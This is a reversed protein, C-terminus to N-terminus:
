RIRKGLDDSRVTYTQSTAGSIKKCTASSSDGAPEAKCQLWQYAYKVNKTGSWLGRHGILEGGVVAPGSISPESVLKPPATARASGNAAAITAMVACLAGISTNRATRGPLFKTM